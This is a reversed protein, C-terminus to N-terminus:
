SSPLEALRPPLMSGPRRVIFENRKQLAWNTITSNPDMRRCGGGWVEDPCPGRLTKATNLRWESYRRMETERFAHVVRLRM